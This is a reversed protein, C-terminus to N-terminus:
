EFWGAVLNLDDASLAGVAEKLRLTNLVYQYREAALDRQAGLHTRQAILTDVITRTGARYGAKIATLAAQTSVVSNELAHIRAIGSALARHIDAAQRMVARRTQEEREQAEARHNAAERTRALVQGGEFLSMKLQLMLKEEDVKNQGYQGGKDETRSKSAVFDLTPLHGARQRTVENDSAQTAHTAAMLRLNQSAAMTSWESSNAPAPLTLPIDTKLTSLTEVDHGIREALAGKAEALQKDAAIEQATALDFGAEIERLDAVTVAGAEYRARVQELQTAFATREARAYSLDDQAALTKLYLETVKLMQVQQQVQYEYDAQKATERTQNHHSFLSQNYLPQTLTLATAKSDFDSQGAILVGSSTVDQKNRASEHSAMITPLLAGVAQSRVADAAGYTALAARIEPDNKLALQYAETLSLKDAAALSTSLLLALASLRAVSRIKEANQMNLYGTATFNPNTKLM